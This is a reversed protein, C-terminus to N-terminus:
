ASLGLMEALIPRVHDRSLAHRLAPEVGQALERARPTGLFAAWNELELAVLGAGALTGFSRLARPTTLVPVGHTLAEAVKINLGSGAVTPCVAIDARRWATEIREVEGLLRIGPLARLAESGKGYVELEITGDRLEDRLEAQMREFGRANPGWRFRGVMVLRLPGGGSVLAGAESRDVAPQSAAEFAPPLVQVRRPAFARGRMAAADFESICILHAGRRRLRRERVGAAFSWWGEILRRTLSTAGAIGQRSLEREDNHLVVFAPQSSRPLGDLLVSGSFDNIVIIANRDTELLRRLRARAGAIELARAGKPWIRVFTVLGALWSRRGRVGDIPLKHCEIGPLSRLLEVISRTYAGAGSSQEMWAEYTVFVVMRQVSM